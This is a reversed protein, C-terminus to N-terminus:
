TAKKTNLTIAALRKLHKEYRDVSQQSAYHTTARRRLRHGEEASLDPRQLWWLLREKLMGADGPETVLKTNDVLEPLIGINSVVTPVGSAMAELATLGFPEQWNSPICAIDAAAFYQEPTATVPRIHIRERTAGPLDQLIQNWRPSYADDMGGVMILIANPLDALVLSFAHLLVEVGKEHTMRGVYVICAADLSIGLASRVIARDSVPRFRETDIWNPIVDLKEGPWGAQLWTEMTHTSPAVGFGITSYTWKRFSSPSPGPLGLHFLSPVGYLRRVIAQVPVFGLHSSVAVDIDYKRLTHGISSIEKWTALPRRRPFGMLRVQIVERCFSVYAPLMNGAIEYLLFLDHQRAALERSLSMLIGESGGGFVPHPEIALIRMFKHTQPLHFVRESREGHSPLRKEALRSGADPLTTKEYISLFSDTRRM